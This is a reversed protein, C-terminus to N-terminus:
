LFNLAVLIATVETDISVTAINDFRGGALVNNFNALDTTGNFNTGRQTTPTLYAM